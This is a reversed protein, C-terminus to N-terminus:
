PANAASVLANVGIGRLLTFKYLKNCQFVLNNRVQNDRGGVSAYRFVLSVESSLASVFRLRTSSGYVLLSNRLFANDFYPM